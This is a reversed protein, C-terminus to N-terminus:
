NKVAIISLVAIAATEVRLINEGLTINKVNPQNLILEKEKESFGGAPGIIVTIAQNNDIKSLTTLLNEGTKSENAFLIVNKDNKLAESLKIIPQIDPIDLRECQEAAEIAHSLMKKEIFLAKNGFDTIIPQLQTVGLETAKEV